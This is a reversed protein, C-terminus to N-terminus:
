RGLQRETSEKTRQNDQYRNVQEYRLRAILSERKADRWVRAADIWRPDKKILKPATTIPEGKAKLEAILTGELTSLADELVGEAHQKDAWDEAQKMAKEYLDAPNIM